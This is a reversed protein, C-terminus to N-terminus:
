FEYRIDAKELESNYIDALKKDVKVQRYVDYAHTKIEDFGQKKATREEEVFYSVANQGALFPRSFSHMPMLEVRRPAGPVDETYVFGLDEYKLIWDSSAYAGVLEQVKSSDMRSYFYDPNYPFNSTPPPPLQKRINPTEAPVISGTSVPRAALARAPIQGAHPTQAPKSLAVPSHWNEEKKASIPEISEYVKSTGGAKAPASPPIVSEGEPPVVAQPLASKGSKGSLSPLIDDSGGAAPTPAAGGRPQPETTENTDTKVAAPASLSDLTDTSVQSPAAMPTLLPNMVAGVPAEEDLPHSVELSETTRNAPDFYEPTPAPQKILQYAQETLRMTDRVIASREEDTEKRKVVPVIEPNGTAQALIRDLEMRTQAPLPATNSPVLTLRILRKAALPTFLDPHDKWFQEVVTESVPLAGRLEDTLLDRKVINTAFECGRQIIPDSAFGATRVEEAMAERELISHLYGSVLDTRLTVDNTEIDPYLSRFQAKSISFDCVSGLAECDELQDWAAPHEIITRREELMKQLQIEYMSRLVKSHLGEDTKKAQEPNDLDPTEAPLVDILQAMYYGRPGRFIPSVEGPKLQSVANEYAFFLEGSQFPPIEGGRSASPSESSERAADAFSEEGSVIKTRIADMDVEISDQTEPTASEDMAKFIYRTRYRLGHLIETQHQQLYNVRDAPDIVIQPDIVRTIYVMQWAPLAYISQKLAIVSDNPLSPVLRPVIFNTFVYEDVEEKLAKLIKKRDTPVKTHKYVDLLYPKNSSESIVMWLYLDRSSVNGYRTRAIIETPSGTYGSEFLAHQRSTPIARATAGMLGMSIGMNGPAPLLHAPVTKTGAALSVPPLMAMAISALLAATFIRGQLLSRTYSKFKM